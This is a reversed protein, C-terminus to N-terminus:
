TRTPCSRATSSRTASARRADPQAALFRGPRSSSTLSGSSRPSCSHGTAPAVGAEALRRRADRAHRRARRSSSRPRAARGPRTLAAGLDERVLDAVFGIRLAGPNGEAWAVVARPRDAPRVHAARRGRRRGPRWSCSSGSRDRAWEAGGGSHLEHATVYRPASRGRGDIPRRPPRPDDARYGNPREACRRTGRPNGGGRIEHTRAPAPVTARPRGTRMAVPSRRLGCAYGVRSPAGRPTRGATPRPHDAGRAVRAAARGARGPPHRQRGRSRDPRPVREAAAPDPHAARGAARCPDSARGGGRPQVPARRAVHGAPRPADAIAIAWDRAAVRWRARRRGKGGPAPRRGAGRDRERGCVRGLADADAASPAAAACRRWPARPHGDRSPSRWASGREHRPRRRPRRSVPRGDVDASGPTPRLPGALGEVRLDVRGCRPDPDGDGLGAVADPRTATPPLSPRPGRGALPGAAAHRLASQRRRPRASEADSGHGGFRVESGTSPRRARGRGLASGDVIDRDATSPLRGPTAEGLALIPAPDVALVTGDATLGLHVPSRRTSSRDRTSPEPHGRRAVRDGPVRHCGAPVGAPDAAGGPVAAELQKTSPRWRRTSTRRRSGRSSRGSGAARPPRPNNVTILTRNYRGPRDSPARRRRQRGPGGQRRHHRGGQRASSASTPAPGPSSAVPLFVSEDITFAVGSATRVLTGRPITYSAAPDCNKWRVGGTAPARGGAQGHSHLRRQGGRSTSAHRRSSGRGRGRRRPRTPRSRVFEVPGVDEVRRDPSRRRPCCSTPPPAVPWGVVALLLVGPAAGYPGHRPVPDRPRTASRVSGRRRGATCSRTSSRGRARAAAVDRGTPGPAVPLGGCPMPAPTPMREGRHPPRQPVAAGARRGRPAAAAALSGAAEDVAAPADLAAEYEVSRASSRCGPRRRWRGPRRTPRSSTSGGAAAMAERALLRFNIRSTAVRSGFPCSWRLRADEAERIRAAASTIEDDVDLYVITAM